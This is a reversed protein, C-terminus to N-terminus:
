GACLTTRAACESYKWLNQYMNPAGAVQYVSGFFLNLLEFYHTVTQPLPFGVPFFLDLAYLLRFIFHYLVALIKRQVITFLSWSAYHFIQM